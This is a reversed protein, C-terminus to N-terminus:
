WQKLIRMQSDLQTPARSASAEGDTIGGLCHLSGILNENSFRLGITFAKIWPM